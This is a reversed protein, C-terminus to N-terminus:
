LLVRLGNSILRAALAAIEPAPQPDDRCLWERMLGISGSVVFNFCYETRAPDSRDSNKWFSAYKGKMLGAVQSVFLTNGHLGLIARCIPRDSEFYAFMERMMRPMDTELDTGYKEAIQEINAFVQKETKDVMDFVDRYYRYFTGRNIDCLATLESVSIENVPKSQMLSALGERLAGLTKRVRRDKTETM